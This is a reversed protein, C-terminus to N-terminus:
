PPDPIGIEGEIKQRLPAPWEEYPLFCTRLVIETPREPAAKRDEREFWDALKLAAERKVRPDKDYVQQQLVKIAARRTSRDLEGTLLRQVRGQAIAREDAKMKLVAHGRKSMERAQEPTWGKKRQPKPPDDDILRAAGRRLLKKPKRAAM